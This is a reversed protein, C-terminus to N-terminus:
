SEGTSLVVGRPSDLGALFVTTSLVLLAITMSITYTFYLCCLAEPRMLMTGFAPKYHMCCFSLAGCTGIGCSGARM